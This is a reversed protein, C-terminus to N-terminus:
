GPKSPCPQLLEQVVIKRLLLIGKNKDFFIFFNMLNFCKSKVQSPFKNFLTVCVPLNQFEITSCNAEPSYQQFYTDYYM